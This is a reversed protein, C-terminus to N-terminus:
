FEIYDDPSGYYEDDDYFESKDAYKDMANAIVFALNLANFVHCTLFFYFFTFCSFFTKISDTFFPTNDLSYFSGLSFIILILGGENFWSGIYRTIFKPDNWELKYRLLSYLLLIVGGVATLSYLKLDQLGEWIFNFYFSDLRGPVIPLILFISILLIPHTFFRFGKLTKGFYIRM